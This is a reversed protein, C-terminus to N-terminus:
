TLTIWCSRWFLKQMTDSTYINRQKGDLYRQHAESPSMRNIAEKTLYYSGAATQGWTGPAGVTGGGGSGGSESSGGEGETGETGTTAGTVGGAMTSMDSTPASKPEVTISDYSLFNGHVTEFFEGNLFKKVDTSVYTDDELYKDLPHEDMEILTEAMDPSTEIAASGHVIAGSADFSIDAYGNQPTDAAVDSTANPDTTTADTANPNNPDSSNSTDGTTADSNSNSNSNSSVTSSVDSAIQSEQQTKANPDNETGDTGPNDTETEEDAPKEQPPPCIYKVGIFECIAQFADRVNQNNIYSQRFEDPIKQKFRKGISHIHIELVSEYEKIRGVEGRFIPRLGQMDWYTETSVNNNEDTTEQTKNGVNNGTYVEVEGTYTIWYKTNGTDTKPMKLIVTSMCDGADWYHEFYHFYNHTINDQRTLIIINNSAEGGENDYNTQLNVNEISVKRNKLEKEKEEPTKEAEEEIYKKIEKPDENLIDFRSGKIRTRNIM